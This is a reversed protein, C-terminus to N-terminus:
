VLSFNPNLEIGLFRTLLWDFAWAVANVSGFFALLVAFAINAIWGRDVVPKFLENEAIKIAEPMAFPGEMRFFTVYAQGMTYALLAKPHGLYRSLSPAAGIDRALDHMYAGYDVGYIRRKGLLNYTPPAMPCPIAGRLRQIWWMIQMEAMPPIAGVNPRVFGVFALRPEDTNVIFHESPLPDESDPTSTPYLFPFKQQYGTCLVIIDFDGSLGNTFRVSHGKISAIGPAMNIQGKLDGDLFSYFRGLWSRTKIPKNIYPMAAASKNIIHYGRRVHKVPAAWQNYGYTTGTFILFGLRILVTTIAWKLHTREVWRHVYCCEFLNTILTDLAVPGWETPVSLLGNRVSMVVRHAVQVARYAIDMATEGAGIVLVRKNKFMAKDKYTSSHLVTGNFSDIGPVEPEYPVNHLGSCVVVADWGETAPGEPGEVLLVYGDGPQRRIRRVATNFRILPRIGFHDTYANLYAVYSTMDMHDKEGPGVRFDSFPTIYKSSVLRANDYCKNVFTGGVQSDQEYICVEFGNEKLTKASVLGSAGAGIIAIRRVGAGVSEEMNRTLCM